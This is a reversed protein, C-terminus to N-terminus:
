FIKDLVAKAQRIKTFTEACGGKDPHHQQALRLYQAKIMKADAHTPLNLTDLAEKKNDQAIYKQWFSKLMDNIEDEQTEFYYKSNLYYSELPDTTELAKQSAEHVAIPNHLTIKQIHVSQIILTFKQSHQYQKKLHYLAHMCLFHASFLDKPHALSFDDFPPIKKDQLNKIIKYENSLSLCNLFQDIEHMIPILYPNFTQM